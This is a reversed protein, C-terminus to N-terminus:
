EGEGMRNGLIERRNGRGKDELDNIEIWWRNGIYVRPVFGFSVRFMRRSFRDIRKSVRERRYALNKISDESSLLPPPPESTNESFPFCNSLLGIVNQNPDPCLRSPNINM